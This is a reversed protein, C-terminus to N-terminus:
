YGDKKREKQMYMGKRHWGTSANAHKTLPPDAPDYAFTNLVSADTECAKFCPLCKFPIPRPIIFRVPM